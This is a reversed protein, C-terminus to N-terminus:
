ARITQCERRCDGFINADIRTDTSGDRRHPVIDLRDRYGRGASLKGEIQEFCPDSSILIMECLADQGLQLLLQVRNQVWVVRCVEQGVGAVERQLLEPTRKLDYEAAVLCRGGDCRQIRRIQSTRSYQLCASRSDVVVSEASETQRQTRAIIRQIHLAGCGTGCVVNVCGVTVVADVDRGIRTQICACRIEDVAM